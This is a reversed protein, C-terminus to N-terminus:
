FAAHNITATKPLRDAIGWKALITKLQGSDILSQMAKQVEDLLPSGKPIGVAFSGEALYVGTAKVKGENKTILYANTASDNPVVDVRGGTLALTAASLDPFISLAVAKKGAKKCAKSQDQALQIELAGKPLGVKVGCLDEFSRVAITADSRLLFNNKANLYDVFDVVKQRDKTDFMGTLALDYRKAKLGPIISDFPVATFKLERGLEKSLAAGIDVNIGTFTKGGTAYFNYPLLSPDAAVTLPEAATTATTAAATAAGGATASDDDSSGCAALGTTLLAAIAALTGARRGMMMMKMFTSRWTSPTTSRAGWDTRVAGALCRRRRRM